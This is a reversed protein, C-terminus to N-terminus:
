PQGPTLPCRVRRRRSAPVPAELRRSGGYSSAGRPLTGPLTSSLGRRRLARRGSAKARHCEGAAHGNKNILSDQGRAPPSTGRSVSSGAKRPASSPRRLRRGPGRADEKGEKGTGQIASVAPSEQPDRSRERAGAPIVSVRCPLGPHPLGRPHQLYRCGGGHDGTGATERAPTETSGALTCIGALGCVGRTETLCPALWSALRAARPGEENEGTATGQKVSVVPAERPCRGRERAGAPVVSVRCPLRPHPLGRSPTGPNAVM